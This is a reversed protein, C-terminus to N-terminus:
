FESLKRELKDEIEKRSAKLNAPKLLSGPRATIPRDGKLVKKQLAEPWGGPSQGLDGRLMSVVSDPFAIDRA